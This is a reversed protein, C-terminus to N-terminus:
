PGPEKVDFTKVENRGDGATLRVEYKGKPLLNLPIMWDRRIVTIPQEEIPVIAGFRDTFTIRPQEKRMSAPPINTSITGILGRTAERLELRVQQGGYGHVRILPRESTLFYEPQKAWTGKKAETSDIVSLGKHTACASFLLAAFACALLNRMVIM